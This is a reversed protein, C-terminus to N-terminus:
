AKTKSRLERESVVKISEVQKNLINFNKTTVVSLIHARPAFIRRLYVQAHM